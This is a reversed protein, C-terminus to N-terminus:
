GRPGRSTSPPSIYVSVTTNSLLVTALGRGPGKCVVDIDIEVFALRVPLEGGGVTGARIQGFGEEIRDARDLIISCAGASQIRVNVRASGRLSPNDSARGSAIEASCPPQSCKLCYRKSM